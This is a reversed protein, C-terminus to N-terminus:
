FVAALSSRAFYNCCCRNARVEGNHQRCKSSARIIQVSGSSSRAVSFSTNKCQSDLTNQFRVVVQRNFFERELDCAKAGRVASLLSAAITACFRPQYANAAPLQRSVATRTSSSSLAQALPHVSPTSSVCSSLVSPLLAHPQSQPSKALSAKSSHRRGFPM